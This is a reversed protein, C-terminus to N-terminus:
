LSNDDLPLGIVKCVGAIGLYLPTDLIFTSEKPM